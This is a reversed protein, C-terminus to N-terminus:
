RLSASISVVATTGDTGEVTVTAGPLQVLTANALAEVRREAVRVTVALVDNVVSAETVAGIRSLTMVADIASQLTRDQRSLKKTLVLTQRVLNLRQMVTVPVALKDQIARNIIAVQGTASALLGGIVMAVAVIAIAWTRFIQTLTLFTFERIPSVTALSIEGDPAPAHGLREALGIAVMAEPSDQSVQSLDIRNLPAEFQVDTDSIAILGGVDEKLRELSFKQLSFQLFKEVSQSVQVDPGLLETFTSRVVGGDYIFGTLVDRFLFTLFYTKAVELSLKTKLYRLVSLLAPEIVVPLVAEALLAREVAELVGRHYFMVLFSRMGDSVTIEQASHIYRDLPLPFEAQIKMELAADVPQGEFYPVRMVNTFFYPLNMSVGVATNRLGLTRVLQALVTGDVVDGDMLAGDFRQHTVAQWLGKPTRELTIVDLTNPSIILTVSRKRWWRSLRSAIVRLITADGASSTVTSKAGAPTAAAVDSNPKIAAKVAGEVPANLPTVSPVSKSM